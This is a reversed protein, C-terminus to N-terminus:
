VFHTIVKPFYSLANEVCCRFLAHDCVVGHAPARFPQGGISAMPLYNTRPM